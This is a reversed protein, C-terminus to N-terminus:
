RSPDHAPELRSIKLIRSGNPDSNILDSQMQWTARATQIEAEVRDGKLFLAIGGPQLLPYAYTLLMPLPALARATLCKAPPVECIEIRQTWVRGRVGLTALATELFAGKRQDSEVLDVHLGTAIAIPLAPFGGGSGLDIFRDIEGPLHSILALSQAVHREGLNQALDLKSVLNLTRNWRGLLSVFADLREQTERPVSALPPLSRTRGDHQASNDLASLLGPTPLSYRLL